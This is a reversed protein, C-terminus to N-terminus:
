KVDTACTSACRTVLITHEWPHHKLPGPLSLFDSATILPASLKLLSEPLLFGAPLDALTAGVLAGCLNGTMNSCCHQSCCFHVKTLSCGHLSCVMRPFLWQYDGEQNYEYPCLVPLSRRPCWICASLLLRYVCFFSDRGGCARGALVLFLKWFVLFVRYCAMLVGWDVGLKEGLM